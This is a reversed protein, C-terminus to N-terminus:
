KRGSEWKELVGIRGVDDEGLELRQRGLETLINYRSSNDNGTDSDVFSRWTILAVATRSSVDNIKRKEPNRDKM